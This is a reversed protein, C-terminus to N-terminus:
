VVNLYLQDYEDKDIAEWQCCAADFLNWYTTITSYFGPFENEVLDKKINM